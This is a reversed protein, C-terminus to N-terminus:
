SKRKGPQLKLKLARLAGAYENLAQPNLTHDRQRETTIELLIQRCAELRKSRPMTKLLPSKLEYLKNGHLAMGGLIHFLPSLAPSVRPGFIHKTLSHAFADPETVPQRNWLRDAFLALSSPLVRQYPDVGGDSWACCEGGIIKQRFEPKIQPARQPHWNILRDDSVYLDLYTDPYYSNVVEFGDKTFKNMSCGRRPGRGKGAVRWFQVLTDHPVPHPNAIDINDNWMMMRKGHKALMGHVRRIFYYFLEQRNGLSEAKMRDRCVPCSKWSWFIRDSLDKFDLEDTGMHFLPGPFIPTIEELLRDMFEYTAESGVCLTWPKRGETDVKCALEPYKEIIQTAHGPLDIEPIIEIEREAAYDCLKRLDARSYVGHPGKPSQNLKPYRRSPLTFSEADTFHIHLHTYKNRALIDLTWKLRELPLFHRAVDLMFGRYAFDPWDRLCGCPLCLGENNQQLLDFLSQCAYQIGRATASKLIVKRPTIQIAYGDVNAPIGTLRRVQKLVLGQEPAARTIRCRIGAGEAMLRSLLRAPIELGKDCTISTGAKLRFVGSGAEWMKPRPLIPVSIREQTKM